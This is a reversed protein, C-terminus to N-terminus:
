RQTTITIVLRNGTETPQWARTLKLDGNTLEQVLTTQDWHTISDVEATTLDVKEKKGSANFKRVTGDDTTMTIATGDIVINLVPPMESAERLIARDRLTKESTPGGGGSYGGFGGGGYGRGGGGGGPYAGGVPVPMQTGGPLPATVDRMDASMEKNLHWQAALKPAVSSAPVATKAAAAAGSQTQASVVSDISLVASVVSAATIALVGTLSVSRMFGEEQEEKM